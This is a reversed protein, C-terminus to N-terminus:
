KVIISNKVDEQKFSCKGKKQCYNELINYAQAIKKMQEEKKLDGQHKDPHYQHALKHYAKKIEDFTAKEALGLLKRAEDVLEFNGLKLNINVFSYPPMPGIYKFRLKGEYKKGLEQMKKDLESEKAREILLSLNAIMDYEILKNLTSDHSFDKLFIQIDKICDQKHAELEKHILKGLRLRIPMGLISTKKSAKQRLKQVEQNSDALEDLFRKQDWWVQVVFEVKGEVKKLATKFQLYARKLIRSVEFALPAIIGFAMPVVDYDKMVIENVKQHGAIYRALEKKDLRDFNIIATNSVAAAIDKYHILNVERSNIGIYGFRRDKDESIICYIYKEEGVM